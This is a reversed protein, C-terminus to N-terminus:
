PSGHAALFGRQARVLGGVRRRFEACKGPFQEAVNTLEQPDRALDFLEEYGGSVHYHYKLDGERLGLLVENGTSFFYARPLPRDHLIDRGQWSNPAPVDLLGLLTAPLDIQQVVSEHHRPGRALSPHLLVAPVRVNEQYIGFSHVRQGHQGFVEGHDGTIAVVTDDALGRRELEQMLREIRRDVNRIANLYRNLEEDEVGFDRPDDGAIYPHHTEITWLLAHFPRTRDEDIWRLAAQFLADDSIGWSFLEPAPLNTADLITEVGRRHLFSDRKKWGWYGSHLYCTRYGRAHLVQPLLPVDFNPSDRTILKWDVRPIVSATLAVLSKPSSAAHAYVHELVLGGRAARAELYPTNDYPAGYLGLYNAGVSELVIVILNQPRGQLPLVDRKSIATVPVVTSAEVASAPRVASAARVQQEQVGARALSPEFDSTDVEAPDFSLTLRDAKFLEDVCSSLFVTHPCAAIRREWRNPDTWNREIYMRSGHSLLFAALAMAVLLAIQRAVAVEGRGFSPVRRAISVCAYLTCPVAILALVTGIQLFGSLSSAMLSPGGSFSLLEVTLPVMALRFMPVSAVAYVGALLFTVVLCFHGTRRWGNGRLWPLNAGVLAVLSCLVALYIIFSLDAAAVIGLRLLWRVFELPTTVPFPLLVLKAAMVPLALGVALAVILRATSRGPISPASGAIATEIEQRVLGDM